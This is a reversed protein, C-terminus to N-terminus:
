PHQHTQVCNLLMVESIFQVPSIFPDHCEAPAVGASSLGADRTEQRCCINLGPAASRRCWRGLLRLVPGGTDATLSWCRRRAESEATRLPRTSAGLAGREFWARSSQCTHLHPPQVRLPPFMRVPAAHRRSAEAFLRKYIGSMGPMNILWEERESIIVIFPYRRQHSSRDRAAVYRIPSLLPAHHLLPRM